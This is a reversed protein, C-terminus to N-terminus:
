YHEKHQIGLMLMPNIANKNLKIEIIRQQERNQTAPMRISDELIRIAEICIRISKLCGSVRRAATMELIRISEQANSNAKLCGFAEEM